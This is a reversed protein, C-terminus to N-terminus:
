ADNEGGRDIEVFHYPPWPGTFEFDFGAPEFRAIQRSLLERFGELSLDAVLFAASLIATGGPGSATEAVTADQAGATVAMSGGDAPLAVGLEGRVSGHGAGAAAPPLPDSVADTSCAALASWTERAVEASVRRIEEAREKELKRELLYRQGPSADRAALELTTVRESVTALDRAIREDSRYVRVTYERAGSVRELTGLLEGSRERLMARVANEDTFMSFMPLPIVPGLDSAWTVVADHSRARPALWGIDATRDAIVEPANQEGDLRSLLAAAGSDAVLGIAAADIGAPAGAVAASVSSWRGGAPVIGYVYCVREAM